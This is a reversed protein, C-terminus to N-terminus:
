SRSRAPASPGGRRAPRPPSPASRSSSPSARSWRRANPRTRRRSAASPRHRRRASATGAAAPTLHRLGRRSARAARYAQLFNVGRIRAARYGSRSLLLESLRIGLAVAPGHLPRRRVPCRPVDGRRRRRLRFSGGERHPRLARDARRTRNDASHVVCLRLAEDASLRAATASSPRPTRAARMTPAIMSSAAAKGPRRRAPTGRRLRSLPGRRGALRGLPRRQVRRDHLARPGNGANRPGTAPRPPGAAGHAALPIGSGRARHRGPRPRRLGACAVVAAAALSPPAM